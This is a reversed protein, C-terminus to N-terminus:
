SEPASTYQVAALQWRGGATAWMQSVRFRGRIVEGQYRCESEVLDFRLGAGDYVHTVSEAVDLRVQEYTSERHVSIWTDRDIVFGRPGTIVADAAVLDTLTRWDGDLLARNVRGQLDDITAGPTQPM